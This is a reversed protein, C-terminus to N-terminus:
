NGRDPWDDERYVELFQRAVREHGALGRWFANRPQALWAAFRVPGAAARIEDLLELLPGLRRAMRELEWEAFQAEWRDSADSAASDSPGHGL